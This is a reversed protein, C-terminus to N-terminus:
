TAALFYADFEKIRSDKRGVIALNHEARWEKNADSICIWLDSSDACNRLDM